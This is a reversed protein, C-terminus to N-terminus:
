FVKWKIDEFAIKRTLLDCDKKSEKFLLFIAVM